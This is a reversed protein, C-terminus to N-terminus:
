SVQNAPRIILSTIVSHFENLGFNIDGFCHTSGSLGPEMRNSVNQDPTLCWLDSIFERLTTQNSTAANTKKVVLAGAQFPPGKEPM